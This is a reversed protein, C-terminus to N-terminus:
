VSGKAVQAVLARKGAEGAVFSIKYPRTKISERVDSYSSGQMDKGNVRAILMRPKVGSTQVQDVDGKGTLYEVQMAYQPHTSENIAIGLTGSLITITHLDAGSTPGAFMPNDSHHITHQIPAVSLWLADHMFCSAWFAKAQGM